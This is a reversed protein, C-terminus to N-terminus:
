WVREWVEPLTGGCTGLWWSPGEVLGQCGRPDVSGDRVELLTVRVGKSGGEPHGSGDWVEGLTGRGM